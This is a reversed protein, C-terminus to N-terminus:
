PLPESSPRGDDAPKPYGILYTISVPLFHGTEKGVEWQYGKASLGDSLERLESASYARLCSVIGDLFLVIPVVPVLYTWLLRAWRFPRMFPVLMLTAVPVLFVLLMTLLSREPAEFIGIGENKEVADRLISRAESPCFHHFSTFLTRFGKLGAPVEAVDVSAQHYQIRGCSSARAREFAEANPYKDTLLVQLPPGGDGDLAPYLWPWPGGGGSCLDVICHTQTAALAKRLRPVVPLYLKGVGFISQLSATISDRLFTPFWPQDHIEALQMRRM